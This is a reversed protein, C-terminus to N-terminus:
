FSFTRHVVAGSRPGELTRRDLLEVIVPALPDEPDLRAIIRAAARLTAGAVEQGHGAAPGADGPVTELAALARVYASGVEQVRLAADQERVALLAQTAGQAGLRHGALGGFLFLAFGAAVAAWVPVGSRPMRRRRAGARAAGHRGLVGRGELERVVRAELTDSPAKERPLSALAEREIDTLEVDDKPRDTM